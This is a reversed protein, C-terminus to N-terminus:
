FIKTQFDNSCVDIFQFRDAPNSNYTRALVQSTDRDHIYRVVVSLFIFKPLFLFLGCFKALYSNRLGFLM